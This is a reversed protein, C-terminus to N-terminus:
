IEIGFEDFFMDALLSIPLGVVNFYDGKIEDILLAGKGQIGYSGAKDMPEKSEIYAEIKQKSLKKFKVDTKQFKSVAKGTKTSYICVGTYVSHTKGSFAELMRRADEEDAPKELIKGDLSVVTDAGIVYCDGKLSSAVDTAKLMSLELVLMEPELNRDIKSEDAMSVLVEFEMGVNNLIERRRPSASALIFKCM